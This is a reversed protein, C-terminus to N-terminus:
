PPSTQSPCPVHVVECQESPTLSASSVPTSQPPGVQPLHAAPAVHLPFASQRVASQLPPVHTVQPVTVLVSVHQGSRVPTLSMSVCVKHEASFVCHIDHSPRKPNIM